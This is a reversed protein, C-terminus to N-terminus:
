HCKHRFTLHDLQSYTWVWGLWGLGSSKKFGVQIVKIIASKVNPAPQRLSCFDFFDSLSHMPFILCTCFNVVITSFWFFAMFPLYFCSSPLPGPFLRAPVPPYGHPALVLYPLDLTPPCTCVDMHFHCTCTPTPACVCPPLHTHAGTQTSATLAFLSPRANSM